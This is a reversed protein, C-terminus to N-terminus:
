LGNAEDADRVGALANLAKDATSANTFLQIAPLHAFEQLDPLWENRWEEFATQLWKRWATPEPSSYIREQEALWGDPDALSQSHRHVRLILGRIRADIGGGIQRVLNHMEGAKEDAYHKRLLGELVNSRLPATQSEDLVVVNPDIELQHTHRRVVQLCFSHLTGIHAADLLLLQNRIYETAAPDQESRQLKRLEERIRKRMEAAAADTFTVMLIRDLGCRTDLLLRVCRQVLTRTKGTGAGAVVLVNGTQKIALEQATTNGESM